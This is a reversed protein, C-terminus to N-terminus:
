DPDFLNKLIDRRSIIGILKKEDDVVPIRKIKEKVMLTAAEEIEMDEKITIPDKSMMDKVLYGMSKNIKDMLDNKSELPFIGGLIEVYSPGSIRSVRRILDGETIIGKVRNDEDVVPLGSFGKENLLNAATQIRDEEKVVVVEKTMIDKVKM